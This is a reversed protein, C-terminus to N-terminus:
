RFCRSLRVEVRLPEEVAGADAGQPPEDDDAKRKGAATAAADAKKQLEPFTIRFPPAAVAGPPVNTYVVARGPFCSELHAADLFTDQLM